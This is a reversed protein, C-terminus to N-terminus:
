TRTCIFYFRTIHLHGALQASHYALFRLLIVAIKRSQTLGMEINNNNTDM